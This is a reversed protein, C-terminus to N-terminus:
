PSKASEPPPETAPAVGGVRRHLREGFLYEREQDQGDASWDSEAPSQSKKLDKVKQQEVLYRVPWGSDPSGEDIMVEVRLRFRGPRGLGIQRHRWRSQWIGLGGDSTAADPLFGDARALQDVAAYVEGQRMPRTSLEQWSRVSGCSALLLLSWSWWRWRPNM